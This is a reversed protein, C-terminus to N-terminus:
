HLAVELAVALSSATIIKFDASLGSGDLESSIQAGGGAKPLVTQALQGFLEVELAAKAHGDIAAGVGTLGDIMQM